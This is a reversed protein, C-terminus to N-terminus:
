KTKRVENLRMDDMLKKPPSSPKGLFLKKVVNSQKIILNPNHCCGLGLLDLEAKVGRRRM